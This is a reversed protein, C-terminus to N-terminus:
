GQRMQDLHNKSLADPSATGILAEFCGSHHEKWDAFSQVHIWPPTHLFVPKKVDEVDKGGFRERGRGGEGVL